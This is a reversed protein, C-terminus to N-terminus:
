RQWYQKMLQFLASLYPRLHTWLAAILEELWALGRDLWGLLQELPHKIYGMLIAETEIDMWEDATTSASTGAVKLKQSPAPPQGSTKALKRQPAQTMSMSAAGSGSDALSAEGGFLDALTLWPEEQGARTSHTSETAIIAPQGLDLLPRQSETSSPKDSDLVPVQTSSHRLFRSPKWDFFYAIATRILAQVRLHDDRSVKQDLASSQSKQQLGQVVPGAQRELQLLMSDLFGLAQAIKSKPREHARRTSSLTSVETSRNQITSESNAVLESNSSLEQFPNGTAPEIARTKLRTIIPDALRRPMWSLIQGLATQFRSNVHWQTAQAIRGWPQDSSIEQAIRRQLRKQQDLTLDLLQNQNTVLVLTRTTLLTAIGRIPVSTSIDQRSAALDGDATALGPSLYSQQVELLIQQIPQSSSPISGTASSPQGVQGLRPGRSWVMQILGHAWYFVVQVGWTAQM